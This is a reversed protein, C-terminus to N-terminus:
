LQGHKHLFIRFKEFGPSDLWLKSLLAHQQNNKQQKKTVEETSIFCSKSRRLSSMHNDPLSTSIVTRKSVWTRQLGVCKKKGENLAVMDQERWVIKLLTIFSQALLYWTHPVGVLDGELDFERYNLCANKKVSFLFVYVHTRKYYRDYICTTDYITQLLKSQKIMNWVCISHMHRQFNILFLFRSFHLM